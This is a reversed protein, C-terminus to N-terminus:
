RPDLRSDTPIGGDPLPPLPPEYGDSTGADKAAEGVVPAFTPSPVWTITVPGPRVSVGAEGPMTVPSAPLPQSGPEGVPDPRPAVPPLEGPSGPRGGCAAITAGALVGTLSLASLLQTMRTM